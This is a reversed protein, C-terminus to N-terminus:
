LRISPIMHVAALGLSPIMHDGRYSCSAHLSWESATAFGGTFDLSAMNVQLCLFGFVQPRINSKTSGCGLALDEILHICM